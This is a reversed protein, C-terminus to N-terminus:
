SATTTPHCLSRTTSAMLPLIRPQSSGAVPLGREVGSQASFLYLQPHPEVRVDNRAVEAESRVWEVPEARQRRALRLNAGTRTDTVPDDSRTRLRPVSEGPVED